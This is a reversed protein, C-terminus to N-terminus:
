YIFIYFNSKIKKAKKDEVWKNPQFLFDGVLHALIFKLALALM